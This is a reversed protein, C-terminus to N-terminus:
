RTRGFEIIVDAFKKGQVGPPEGLYILPPDRIDIIHPRYEQSCGAVCLLVCILVTRM